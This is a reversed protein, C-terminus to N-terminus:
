PSIVATTEPVVPVTAMISEPSATVGRLSLNTSQTLALSNSRMTLAVWAVETSLISASQQCRELFTLNGIIPISVLLPVTAYQPSTL